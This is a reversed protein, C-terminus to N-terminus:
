IEQKEIRKIYIGHEKNCGLSPNDISIMTRSERVHSYERFNHGSKYYSGGHQKIEKM